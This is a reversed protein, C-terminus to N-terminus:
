TSEGGRAIVLKGSRVMEIVGFTELLNAMADLKSSDGTTEIILSTETIDVVKARFVEVIQFIDTRQLSDSKVKFLALERELANTFQHHSAHVVDILKNLQRIIQEFTDSKGQVVVTMRSFNPNVEPSVVLSEINYGRRAFTQALRVLVGPKNNVLISITYTSEM